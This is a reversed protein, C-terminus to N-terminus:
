GRPERPLVVLGHHDRCALRQRKLDDIADFDKMDNGLLHLM